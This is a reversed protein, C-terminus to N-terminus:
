VGNAAVAHAPQWVPTISPVPVMVSGAACTLPFILRNPLSDGNRQPSRGAAERQFAGCPSIQAPSKKHRACISENVAPREAVPPHLVLLHDAIGDRLDRGILTGREGTAM